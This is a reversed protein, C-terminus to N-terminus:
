NLKMKFAHLSVEVSATQFNQNIITNEYNKLLKSRDLDGKIRTSFNSLRNSSEINKRFIFDFSTL